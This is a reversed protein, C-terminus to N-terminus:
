NFSRYLFTITQGRSCSSGPEFADASIGTTIGQELAWLVADFFYDKEAIDSFPNMSSLPAPKEAARWLFTVVQARSCPSNPEFADASVGTTIGQELAWLVASYYYHEERVDSFPSASSLPAPEGAARWLFTLVQARTCVASPDFITASMGSTVNKELAWFVGAHFFDSEKVDSFPNEVPEPEPEPEPVTLHIYNEPSIPYNDTFPSQLFRKGFSHDAFDGSGKLFYEYNEKGADWTSDLLYYCEGLKAINWAHNQSFSTGTVVRASLGAEGALRYFLSAYGQCLARGNILAAYTTYKLLYGPKSLNERDYEVNECLWSYITCLKEYDGTDETFAFSSILTEVADDVAKEQEVSTYYRMNFVLEYYYTGEQLTYNGSGEYYDWHYALYDGQTPKGTEDLARDMLEDLFADSIETPSAYLVTIVADRAELGSRLTAAADDFDATYSSLPYDGSISDGASSYRASIVTRDPYLPNSRIVPALSGSGAESALAVSAPQMILLLCMIITFLRKKV